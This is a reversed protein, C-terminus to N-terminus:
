LPLHLRGQGTHHQHLVRPRMRMWSLGEGMVPEGKRGTGPEDTRRRAREGMTSVIYLAGGLMGPGIWTLVDAGGPRRRFL